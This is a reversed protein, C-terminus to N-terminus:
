KPTPDIMLAAVVRRDEALLINFTRCAAPTAMVEVGIRQRYLSQLLSPHPFTLTEGTGLLLVEPAQEVIVDFHHAQLENVSAPPWEPQLNENSVILSTTYGTDGITVSDRTCARIRHTIGPNDMHLKM